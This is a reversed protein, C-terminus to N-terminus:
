LKCFSFFYSKKVKVNLLHVIKILKASMEQNNKAPFKSLSTSTSRPMFSFTPSVGERNALSKGRNEQGKTLMSLLNNTRM